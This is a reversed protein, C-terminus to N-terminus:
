LQYFDNPTVNGKTAKVVLRMQEVRPIRIGNAWLRVAEGTVGIQKAFAATGGNSKLYEKLTM